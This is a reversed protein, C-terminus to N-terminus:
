LTESSLAMVGRPRWTPILSPLNYVVLSCYNRTSFYGNLKEQILSLVLGRLSDVRIRHKLFYWAMIAYPPTSTYRWAITVYAISPSSHDAKSELPFFRRYGNSLLNPPGWLRNRYPSSLFERGQGKRSDFRPRGTRLRAVVSHQGPELLVLQSICTV